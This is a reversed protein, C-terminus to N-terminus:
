AHLAYRRGAPDDDTFLRPTQDFSIELQVGKPRSFDFTNALRDVNVLDHADRM